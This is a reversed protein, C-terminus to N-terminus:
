DDRACMLAAGRVVRSAILPLSLGDVVVAWRTFSCLGAEQEALARHRPQALLSCGRILWAVDSNM